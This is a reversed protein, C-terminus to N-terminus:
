PNFSTEGSLPYTKLLWGLTLHGGQLIALKFGTGSNQIQFSKGSPSLQQHPFPQEVYDQTFVLYFRGKYAAARHPQKQQFISNPAGHSLRKALDKRWHQHTKQNMQRVFLPLTKWVLQSLM